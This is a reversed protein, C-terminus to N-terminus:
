RCPPANKTIMMPRQVLVCSVPPVSSRWSGEFLPIKQAVKLGLIREVDLHVFFESDGLCHSGQVVAVEARAGDPKFGALKRALREVKVTLNGFDAPFLRADLPPEAQPHLHRAESSM